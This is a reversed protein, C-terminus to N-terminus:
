YWDNEINGNFRLILIGARRDCFDSLAGGTASVERVVVV